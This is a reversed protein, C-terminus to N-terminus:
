LIKGKKLNSTNVRKYPYWRGRRRKEVIYIYLVDDRSLGAAKLKEIFVDSDSVVPDHDAIVQDATTQEAAMLSRSYDVLGSASVGVVPLGAEKLEQHLKEPNVSESM